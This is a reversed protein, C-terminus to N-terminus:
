GQNDYAQKGYHYYQQPLPVVAGAVITGGLHPSRAAYRNSKNGVIYLPDEEGLLSVEEEGFEMTAGFSM